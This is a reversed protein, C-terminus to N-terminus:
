ALLGSPQLDMIFGHLEVEATQNLNAIRTATGGSIYASFGSSDVNITVHTTTSSIVQYTNGNLQTMGVVSAITILSGAPFAGTCALVCPNAQTAGTIAIADSINTYSSMQENSITFGLQVSDGLLSTNIRHWIEAQAEATPMQLNTNAPTLGLNTSEPCTYLVTSYILGDNISSLDPVIPGSNYPSSGNQSLFILLQMQSNETKTLLYQQPGMRTKRAMDWAAPFQKTQIFPVYLRKIVGLGLYTFPTLSSDIPPDITFNDADVDQVLFTKGNLYYGVTGLCGSIVIFDGTNLNHEPSTITTVTASVTVASIYLSIGEDTGGERTLVFGQQNGGIVIPELLSSIGANWPVDWSEWTSYTFGVTSWIFGSQPRFLGYTTYTERFVAWTDDRYNYFLTQNQFKKSTYDAPYTFYIWENIFDRQSCMREAGNDSRRIQFVLDPIPLDIRECTNQSTMVFGRSGQTIVGQDMNIASFTTESGYESNISYFAFPLVDNGTYVLRIQARDFGLILIDENSSSTNLRQDIGALVFGGFGTQDEFFAAASSTQDTPVLIPNFVTTADEPEGTFSATYFPTGNQSYIICDQLYLQSGSGSTQIVPGLFLLRDKFPVIMRAGVLYWQAARREAVSFSAKSLPPCFNVWGKTTSLVPATSSGNTPDGDYWRLCDKTSDSNNTLYQAIGGSSYAGGLTANPFEVQVNNADVVVVVYGTQFNIGTIGVVENIFVFDGVVLGHGAITLTALAPPGAADITVGTISKFQMGINTTVFPTPVGNTAWLAGQYNTTWFQQYDQGNWHLATWNTKQIYGAYTATSPNKYFSVDDIAYPSASSIQYSYVTDFALCDPHRNKELILDELGMVPLAPYYVFSGSVANVGGGSITIAGTAYDITGTGAPAGTLVGDETTDTYTNGAVTIIISGPVITANPSLTNLSFGTILNGAGAVLNFSTIAGYTSNNSDFFRQLRGLLATGRKRKVRSRWQYANILTPFSDNDINFPTVDNRLGKRIPGVVLKEGM